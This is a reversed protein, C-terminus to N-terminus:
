FKNEGIVRGFEDYLFFGKRTKKGLQGARVLKKLIAPPRYKMDGFERFLEDMWNLVEDLGMNDALGLPGMNLNYGLRMATDVGTASAVGEMVVMMAENLMPLIVRTTVFGPYEYVEVSTKSLQTAFQRVQNFTKDSTHLGRIIEVVPIKPVPNLFHLGVFNEPRSTSNALETISLTSTNTAFIVVRPTIKDLQRFLNKKMELDEPISELVIDCNVVDNLNTTFTTRSLIARKESTTLGWRQIEIDMEVSLLGKAIEVDTEDKEICIVSLGKSASAWTLGRGMVGQGIIAVTNFGDANSARSLTNGIMLEELKGSL